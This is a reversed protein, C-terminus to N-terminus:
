KAAAFVAVDVRKAGATKLTKAASEVTAGTTVVDDILLIRAGQLEQMNRVRFVGEMQALRQRRTAGVQRVQGSRALAPVFRLGAQRAVQKAILAAHDFGRERVHSTAAPVHVVLTDPPLSPLTHALERAIIEAAEVSYKFKMTHVIDRAIATYDTRVWLHGVKSTRRCAACTASHISLANCRYCRGIVEPLASERCWVCLLSGETDCRVCTAPAITRFFHEVLKM